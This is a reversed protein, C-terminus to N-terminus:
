DGDWVGDPRLKAMAILQLLPRKANGETPEWYDSSVEDGLQDAAKQLVPISDAGTMGYISRIGYLYGAKKDKRDEPEAEPYEPRYAPEFVRYYYEAYNYTVNLWADTIPAPAWRGDADMEARYTGGTMVHAYPLQITEGTVADKLRIDYSM